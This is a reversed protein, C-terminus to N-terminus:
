YFGLAALVARASEAWTPLPRSVAALRLSALRTDDTLVERLTDAWAPTSNAPVLICGGGAANEELSPIRSCVCPIGQWLAELVPLGNGEALSPFVAARSAAQLRRVGTDDLPGHFKLGRHRKALAKARQVIPAGFQPNVRGVLHLDFELGSNWLQGCVDLMLSQNKRPEVIGVMLLAPTASASPVETVRPMGAADAGLPIVTVTARIAPRAWEWYGLLEKRSAESIALVREFRALRKLYGPHRGVSKTWTVGPFKLPIADYYVAAARCPSNELWSGFGEREAEGFVEPTFLWDGTGPAAVSGSRAEKWSGSKWVVDTVGVAAHAGIEERIRASVRQLGSHHGSRAANTTDYFIM